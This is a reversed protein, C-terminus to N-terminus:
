KSEFNNVKDNNEINEFKNLDESNEIEDAIKELKSFQYNFYYFIVAIAYFIISFPLFSNLIDTQSFKFLELIFGSNNEGIILSIIKFFVYIASFLIGFFLFLKFYLWTRFDYNVPFYREKLM